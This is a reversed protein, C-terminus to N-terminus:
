DKEKDLRLEIRTIKQLTDLQYNKFDTEIREIKTTIDHSVYDFSKSDSEHKKKILYSILKLLSMAIFFMMALAGMEGPTLSPNANLLIVEM